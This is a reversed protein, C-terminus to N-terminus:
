VLVSANDGIFSSTEASGLTGGFGDFGAKVGKKDTNLSTADAGGDGDPDFEPLRSIELRM